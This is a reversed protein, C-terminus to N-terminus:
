GCSPGSRGPCQFSGVNQADGVRRYALREVVIRRQAGHVAPEEKGLPSGGVGITSDHPTAKEGSAIGQGVGPPEVDAVRM